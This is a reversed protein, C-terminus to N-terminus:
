FLSLEFFLFQFKFVSVFHLKGLMITKKEHIAMDFGFTTNRDHVAMDFGYTGGAMRYIEMEKSIEAREQLDLVMRQVSTLFGDMVEADFRFGCSYSFTPNLYIGAAHIPCHLTNNWREDIVKRILLIREYGEDGKDEYYACISEKARDMAEYLYGMAPKDGDVLHLVRVLPECVTCVEKM